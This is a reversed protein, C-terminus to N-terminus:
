IPLGVQPPADQLLVIYSGDEDRRWTRQLLLERPAALATSPFLAGRRYGSLITTHTDVHRVVSLNEYGYRM